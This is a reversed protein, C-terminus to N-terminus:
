FEAFVSIMVCVCTVVRGDRYGRSVICVAENKYGLADLRRVYVGGSVICVAEKEHGLADLEGYIRKGSVTCVM